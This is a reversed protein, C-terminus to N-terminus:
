PPRLRARSVTCGYYQAYNFHEPSMELASFDMGMPLLMRFNDWELFLVSGRPDTSLVQVSAGAISLTQGPQMISVPISLSILQSMLETASRTGYSNGSRNFGAALWAM